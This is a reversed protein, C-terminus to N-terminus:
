SFASDGETSDQDDNKDNKQEASEAPAKAAIAIAVTMCDGARKPRDQYNDDDEQQQAADSGRCGADIVAGEASGGQPRPSIADLDFSIRRPQRTNNSFLRSM